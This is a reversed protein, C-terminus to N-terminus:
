SKHLTSRKKFTCFSIEMSIVNQFEYLSKKKLLNLLYKTHKVMKKFVREISEYM